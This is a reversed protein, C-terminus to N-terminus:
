IDWVDAMPYKEKVWKTNVDMEIQVKSPGDMNNSDVTSADHDNVDYFIDDQVDYYPENYKDLDELITDMTPIDVNTDMNTFEKKGKTEDMDIEISVNTNMVHNDSPIEGSNNDKNWEEKLKDLLEEKNVKEWQECMDRHRDLWKHFLDLQNMIPDSNTLKAVSNNSTNKPHNTGFLENEKRKLVEDYIDIHKNGSLTDNILDIGSYVNNSIYKPDDMSNTSMNINYSIEQGTYLNRDHISMIFPKEEPKDFYLTNPQNNMPIDGSRYNNPVDNQESQLMNSIFNQKLENWEDETFKNSPIDDSPIDNQTDRKSPELVVEILTKYKPSGPVYIDNIDLEEYESESSTIDSTDSMFMYKEEDTDGEVYLYTKGKYQASKYPIYRNASTKTPMGYDGKPMNLVRLLDVPTHIKKKLLFYSLAAFAIGVSLPFASISMMEPLISRTVRKPPPKKKDAKPPPAVPVKKEPVIEKPPVRNKTEGDTSSAAKEEKCNCRDKYESPTADLSAPMSADHSNKEHNETTEKSEGEMCSCNGDPCLEKLSKQIYQYAYKSDTVDDKLSKTEVKTKEKDEFYKKSQTKYKEQWDKLWEQYEACAQSCEKQKEEGNKCTESPCARKLTELQKTQEKCFKEGWETFWRLFTPREAFDVLYEKITHKTYTSHLQTRIEERDKDGSAHSLACVMGEWISLGYEKWWDKRTLGDPSKKEDPNPSCSKHFVSDITDKVQKERDVMEDNGSSSGTDVVIGTNGLLVDRYDAFTYFMTRLFEPPIIGSQLLEADASNKTKYHQWLLFTEKAACQIFAERLKEDTKGKFEKLYHLCLEQRRPPICVGDDEVLSNDCEWKLEGTKPECGNIASTVKNNGTLLAEVIECADLAEPYRINCICADDYDYPQTRFAFNKNKNTRCFLTQKECESIHAEQHVYGEASEYIKNSEKNKDYLKKLFKVVDKEDKPNDSSPFNGNKANNYLEKYKTSIADWQTKWKKIKDEYEKCKDKCEKCKTESECTGSKCGDCHKKLEKYLKSQEKCYWEAWEIMWRLRQPIYDDVPMGTCPPSGRPPPGSTTPCQMAEWVQRRNATWWDERLLKYPSHDSAYKGKGNLSSHIHGFITVLYGELKKFDKHEWLDKGRIIDGIDAFSRRIARCVTEKDETDSLLGKGENQKYKNIIDQAEKQASWLVDVLFTDNVNNSRKVSDVSIKELNSTCFHQRRQPLYLYPDEIQVTQGTNWIEGIKLRNPGKGNCPNNYPNDAKSHDQKVSCVDNTLGNPKGGKIKAKGINGVLVSKGKEGGEGGGVVSNGVMTNHAEGQIEKAVEKVSVVNTAGTTDGGCPNAPVNCYPPAHLPMDMDTSHTDNTPSSQPPDTCQGESKGTSIKHDVTCKKVETHLNDLLCDVIDKKTDKEHGTNMNGNCGLSAEFDRLDEIDGKVKKLETHFQSDELFSRVKYDDSGGNKYQKLYRGRIKSWEMKKQEIWKEACACNKGCKYPCKPQEGNNMCPKLKKKITNYDELFNEVWRKLLERNLIIQEDDIDNKNNTKKLGCVDLNCFYACSWQEKKIGKFIDAGNCEDGLVDKLGNKSDDSVLMDIDGNGNTNVKFKEATIKQGNCKAKANESCEGENCKLGTIPCPKCNDSHKFTAEEKNFEITSGGNDDNKNCPVDKLSDLFSDATTYQKMNDVFQKDYISGDTSEAEKLKKEYKGMQIPYLNKQKNFEEKKKKIWKRYSSCYIGCRPCNFNSIISYDQNGIEKCKEGDGSCKQKTGSGNDEMCEKKIIGLKHKKKRCFEDAWEEIWRFFFPRSVFKALKTKTTRHANPAAKTPMASTTNSGDDFGGEFYVSGYDYKGNKPKGDEFLAKEVGAIKEKTKTDYSLACLMGEWIDPGHQKWFTERPDESKQGGPVQNSVSNRFVKEMSGKIEQMVKKEEETGKFIDEMGSDKSGIYLIDRYDGLTYFMQRLFDQPIDGKELEKQEKDKEESTSGYLGTNQEEREKQKEKKFEHWAFFTEVAASQIFATRLQDQSPSSTTALDHLNKTYLRRRRPPICVVDGDEKGKGGEKSDDNNDCAWEKLNRRTTDYKWKCGEAYEVSSKDGLIGHVIECPKPPTDPAETHHDDDEEDYYEDLDDEDDEVDGIEPTLSRSGTTIECNISNHTGTCKIADEMEHDLLINIADQSHETDGAGESGKIKNIEKMLEESKEDGYAKEIKDMFFIQLFLKLTLYAENGKMDKQQDFHHKIEGWEKEKQKVWKEFCECPKKCGIKCKTAKENNICNKLQERWDISDNLMRTLWLWFFSYYSVIKQSRTDQKGNQLVCYDNNSDQFRCKWIDNKIEQGNKCFGQLKELINKKSRDTYLIEINTTNTDDFSIVKEKGCDTEPKPTWPPGNEQVGCWPCPECYETHAFTKNNNSNKDDTNTFDIKGEEQDTIKQCEKENNLLKLFKDVTGYDDKNLKKYFETDYKDNVNDYSDSKKTYKEMEKTYKQKQKLFEQKQKDIWHVFHDCSVLCDICEPEYNLIDKGRVSTKCDYGNLSCYKPEGIANHGRCKNIADKLKHKRKRCFDEAWEEFWRLYQPVYDLNTPVNRRNRGCHGVSFSYEGGSSKKFYEDNGGADCTIAKWVDRRNLAWWYERVEENKLYKLSLNNNRQINQFMQVLRAELEKKRQKHGLFLDKGRIIDGIDAFSRALATCLGSKYDGGKQTYENQISKGEYKAALLVDVLLNHTNRIKDPKIHELNRDCLHLRRFPACAGGPGTNNGKIRTRYCYAGQKDSFRVPQRGFCPNERGRGETVNTDFKYNLNCPNDTNVRERNSFEVQSLDGKLEKRFKEAATHVEQQIKEGIEDLVEKASKNTGRASKSVM